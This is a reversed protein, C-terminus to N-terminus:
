RPQPQAIRERSGRISNETCVATAVAVSTLCDSWVGRRARSENTGMEGRSTKTAVAAIGRDISIRSQIAFKRTV